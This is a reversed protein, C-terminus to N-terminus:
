FDVKVQFKPTFNRSEKGLLAVGLGGTAWLAPPIETYKLVYTHICVGFTTNAGRTSRSPGQKYIYIYIYKHADSWRDIM